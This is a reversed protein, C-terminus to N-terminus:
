VLHRDHVSQAALVCGPESDPGCQQRIKRRIPREHLRSIRQRERSHIHRPSCPEAPDRLIVGTVREIWPRKVDHYQAGRLLYVSCPLETVRRGKRSSSSARTVSGLQASRWCSGARPLNRCFVRLSAGQKSSLNSCFTHSAAM